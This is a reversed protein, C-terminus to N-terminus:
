QRAPLRRGRKQVHVFSAEDPSQGFESIDKNAFTTMAPMWEELEDKKRTTVTATPRRKRITSLCAQASWPIGEIVIHWHHQRITALIFGFSTM